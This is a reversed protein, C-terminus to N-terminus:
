PLFPALAERWNSLNDNQLLERIRAGQVRIEVCAASEGGSAIGALRALSGRDATTQASYEASLSDHIRELHKRVIPTFLRQREGALYGEAMEAARSIQGATFNDYTHAMLGLYNLECPDDLYRAAYSDFVALTNNRTDWLRKAALAWRELNKEIATLEGVDDKTLQFKRVKFFTDWLFQFRSIPEFKAREAQLRQTAIDPLNVIM